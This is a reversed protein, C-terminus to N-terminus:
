RWLRDFFGAVKEPLRYDELDKPLTIEPLTIEPLTIGAPLTIEPLELKPLEMAALKDPLAKLQAALQEPLEAFRYEEALRAVGDKLESLSIYPNDEILKALKEPLEPLEALLAEGCQEKLLQAIAPVDVAPAERAPQTAEVPQAARNLAAGAAIGGVLLVAFVTVLIRKLM